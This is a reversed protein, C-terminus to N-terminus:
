YSLTRITIEEWVGPQGNHLPAIRFTYETDPELAMPLSKTGAYIQIPSTWDTYQGGKRSEVYAGDYYYELPDYGPFCDWQLEAGERGIRTARLNAVGGSASARCPATTTTTPTPVAVPTTTATTSTSVPRTTTTTSSSSSAPISIPSATTSTSTPDAAPTTSTTTAPDTTSTTSDQGAQAQSATQEIRVIGPDSGERSVLVTLVVVLTLTLAVAQWPVFIGVLRVGGARREEHQSSRETPQLDDM